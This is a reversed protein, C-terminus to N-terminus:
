DIDEVNSAQHLIIGYSRDITRDNEVAPFSEENKGLLLSDVNELESSFKQKLSSRKEKCIDKRSPAKASDLIM